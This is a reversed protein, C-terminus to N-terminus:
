DSIIVKSVDHHKFVSQLLVQALNAVTLSKCTPIYHTMKIFKNVIM